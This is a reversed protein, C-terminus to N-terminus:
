FATVGILIASGTRLTGYSKKSKSFGIFGEPIIVTVIINIVVTVAKNLIIVTVVINPASVTQPNNKRGSYEHLSNIFYYRFLFIHGSDQLM